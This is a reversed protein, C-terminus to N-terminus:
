AKNFSRAKVLLEANLFDFFDQKDEIQVGRIPLEVYNFCTAYSVSNLKWDGERNPQKDLVKIRDGAGPKIAESGTVNKLFTKIKEPEDELGNIWELFWENKDDLQLDLRSKLAGLTVRGQMLDSLDQPSMERLNSIQYKHKAVSSDVMGKAVCFFPALQAKMKSRMGEKIVMQIKDFNALMAEKDYDIEKVADSNLADALDYAAELEEESWTNPDKKESLRQNFNQYSKIHFKEAGLAVKEFIEVMREDPMEDLVQNANKGALEEDSFSQIGEFFGADFQIGIPYEKTANLCFMMVHGMRLYALEEERSLAGTEDKAVPRAFGSETENFKFVGDEEYGHRVLGDFLDSVFQRGLGGWDSGREGDFQVRIEEADVNLGDAVLQLVVVPEERASNIHIGSIRALTGSMTLQSEGSERRLHNDIGEEIRDNGISSQYDPHIVESLDENRNYDGNEFYAQAEQRALDPQMIEPLPVVGDNDSLNDAGRREEDGVTSGYDPHVVFECPDAVSGSGHNGLANRAVETIVSNADGGQIFVVEATGWDHDPLQHVLDQLDALSGTVESPTMIADIDHGRWIGAEGTESEGRVSEGGGVESNLDFHSWDGFDSSSDSSNYHYDGGSM